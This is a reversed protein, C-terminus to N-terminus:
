LGDEREFAFREVREAQRLFDNVLVFFEIEQLIRQINLVAEVVQAIIVDDNRRIGIYVAHVDAQQKDGEEELEEWFEDFLAM